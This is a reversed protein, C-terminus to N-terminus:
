GINAPEVNLGESQIQRMSKPTDFDYSTGHYYIKPADQTEVKEVKTTKTKKAKTVTELITEPAKVEPTVPAEIPKVETTMDLSTQAESPKTRINKPIKGGIM